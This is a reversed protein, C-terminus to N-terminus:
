EAILVIYLNCTVFVAWWFPVWKIALLLSMPNRYVCSAFTPLPDSDMPVVEITLIMRLDLFLIYHFLM